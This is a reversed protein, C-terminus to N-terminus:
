DKKRLSYAGLGLGAAILASIGFDIPLELGPPPPVGPRCERAPRCKGNCYRQGIECPDQAQIDWAFLSLILIIRLTIKKFRRNRLM